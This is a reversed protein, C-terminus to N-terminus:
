ANKLIEEIKQGTAKEIIAQLKKKRPCPNIDCSLNYNCVNCIQKYQEILAELMEPASSVLRANAEIEEMDTGPFGNPFLDLHYGHRPLGVHWEKYKHKVFCTWPGPTHKLKFIEGTGNCKDCVITVKVLDQSLWRGKGKCRDCIM